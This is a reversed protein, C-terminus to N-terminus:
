VVTWHCQQVATGEDIAGAGGGGGAVEEEVAIGEEGEAGEVGGGVGEAEVAGAEEEGGAEDVEMAVGVELDEFAVAGFGVLANGGFDDAVAAEGGIGAAGMAVFYLLEGVADEEAVAAIPGPGVGLLIEGLGRRLGLEDVDVGEDAVAGEADGGHARTLARGGGGFEVAHLVREGFAEGAAGGAEGGPEHVGRARCGRRLLECGEAADGGAGILDVGGM